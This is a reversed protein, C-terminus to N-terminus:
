RRKRAAAKGRPTGAGFVREFIRDVNKLQRKLDFAREIQQRPVRATIQKDKLVLAKFNEGQKWARMANKQVVRYAQERLMGNEALDLLLQGSFVLGGTSELNDLMRKPYVLLTDILSATKALMYDVLITSDPLIVREVSSHSIDREHWLAVNEFAAQANARVVRALGCIQESTVPNRKHPMASSGKQKESFFEEAERVETRQLHRVELAIKELTAAIVALTAVYNAHRDRPIVQTSIPEVELGLRECIQAEFEPELHALNGVAGSLKGVRMEEGARDFRVIDREIEAYWNALKLGFTIPEAHIGHTRGIQPTRKFEFARRKLVDRLKELDKRIIASADKLQLAQATDVVDNSTLGYHLWRSEKGIKEAVATTFAIVDHKVEAEVEHIRQLDFDGKDRIAAAAEPPVIGAAALTETAALEVRLWMRFKNEDSWIGGMEPRTYRAIM